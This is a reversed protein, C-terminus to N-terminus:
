GPLHPPGFRPDVYEQIPSAGFGVPGFRPDGYVYRISSADLAVASSLVLRDDATLMTIRVNPDDQCAVTLLTNAERAFAGRMVASGYNAFPRLKNTAAETPREMIWEAENGTVKRGPDLPTAILVSRGATINHLYTRATRADLSPPSGEDGMWVHMYVQDGVSVPINPVLQQTQQQPLLQTWASCTGLAFRVSGAASAYCDQETGAQWLDEIGDGDLGIWFASYTTGLPPNGELPSPVVWEGMVMDYAFTRLPEVVHRHGPGRLEYGSWNHTNEFGARGQAYGGGLDPRSVLRPEVQVSPAIASRRWVAFADPAADPNPRPPYGREALENDPLRWTEEDSLGPRIRAGEPPRWGTRPPAPMDATAEFGFRLEVRHVTVREEVDCELVLRVIESSEAEPRVLFRTVGDVDAFVLLDHDPKPAGDARLSCIGLARTTIAVQTTIGPRVTFRVPEDSGLAHQKSM